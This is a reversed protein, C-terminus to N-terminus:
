ITLRETFFLVLSANHTRSSPKTGPKLKQNIRQSAELLLTSRIPAQGELRANRGRAILRWKPFLFEVSQSLHFNGLSPSYPQPDPRAIERKKRALNFSSSSTPFASERKTFVEQLQAITAAVSFSLIPARPLTMGKQPKWVAQNKPESLPWSNPELQLSAGLSQLVGLQPGFM